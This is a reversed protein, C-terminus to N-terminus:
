KGVLESRAWGLAGSIFLMLGILLFMGSTLTMLGLDQPVAGPELSSRAPNGPEHYVTVERGVPHAVVVKEAGARDSFSKPM